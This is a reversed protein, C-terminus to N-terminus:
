LHLFIVPSSNHLRYAVTFGACGSFSVQVSVDHGAWFFCAFEFERFAPHLEVRFVVVFKVFAVVLQRSDRSLRVDALRTSLFKFQGHPTTVDARDRTDNAPASPSSAASRVEM